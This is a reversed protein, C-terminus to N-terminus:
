ATGSGNVRLIQRRMVMAILGLDRLRVLIM